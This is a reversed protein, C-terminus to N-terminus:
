PGACHFWDRAHAHDREIWRRDWTTRAVRRGWAYVAGSHLRALNHISGSRVGSVQTLGSVLVPSTRPTTTGDGMQGSGNAGWAYVQGTSTVALSHWEGAAIGVIGSLGPVLTPVSLSTTSGQGLQGSTGVGWAYVSGSATLALSHSAGAAIAVVNSLSPVLVPSSQNQTTGDGLRGSNNYGWAFVRGDWTLALTHSDGATLSIVGTVSPIAKPATRPTTMSGDGVQGFNNRGWAYLLGQPTALVTHEAGAALAGPGLPETLTYTAVAVDSDVSEDKTARVKLTYSGVLLATGTSV